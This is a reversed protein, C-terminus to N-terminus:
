KRRKKEIAPVNSAGCTICVFYEMDNHLHDIMKTQPKKEKCNWCPYMYVGVSEPM